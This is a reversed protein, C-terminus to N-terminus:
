KEPEVAGKDNLIIQEKINLSIQKKINISYDPVGNGAITKLIHQIVPTLFPESISCIRIAQAWYSYIMPKLAKEGASLKEWDEPYNFNDKTVVYKPIALLNINKDNFSIFPLIFPGEAYGNLPALLNSPNYESLSKQIGLSILWDRFSKSDKEIEFLKVLNIIGQNKKWFHGLDCNASILLYFSGDALIIDGCRMLKDGPDPSYYLRYSWMKQLTINDLPPIGPDRKPIEEIIKYLDNTSLESRFKETLFDIFDKNASDGIILHNRVDNLSVKGMDSLIKDIARNTKKRLIGAFRFSFNSEYQAKAQERIQEAQGVGAINKDLYIIRENYEVFEEKKLISTIQDKLGANSFIFVLCFSEDLIEQLMKESNIDQGSGPYDWDFIIIDSRYNSNIYFKPNTFGCLDWQHNGKENKDELLTEVLSRVVDDGWPKEEQNLLYTLNSPNLLETDRIGKVAAPIEDDIICISYGM